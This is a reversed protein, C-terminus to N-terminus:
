SHLVKQVIEFALSAALKATRQDADFQPNLEAIDAGVVKGSELILRFIELFAGDPLIGNFSPASVGPAFAAQFVDLCITLYIYDQSAIFAAVQEKISHIQQTQFADAQIYQVGLSDAMKYLARTNGIAQLGLVMYDFPENRQQQRYAIEWFSTGSTSIFAGSSNQQPTRLDFHADFNLIGLKAHAPLTKRIGQEHANAVEHGVAFVDGLDVFAHRTDFHVPINRCATRIAQPGHAAGVRGQNRRVGEDSAFGIIALGKQTPDLDKYIVETNEIVQHWRWHEPDTGDQRGTWSYFSTKMDNANSRKEM